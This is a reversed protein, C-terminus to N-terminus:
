GIKLNAANMGAEGKMYNTLARTLSRQFTPLAVPPTRSPIFVPFLPSLTTDNM